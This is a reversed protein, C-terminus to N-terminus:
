SRSHYRGKVNLDDGICERYELPVIAECSRGQGKQWLAINTSKTTAFHFLLDMWM